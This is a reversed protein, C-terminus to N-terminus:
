RCVELLFFGVLLPAGVTMLLSVLFGKYDTTIGFAFPVVYAIGEAAQVAFYVAAIKCLVRGITNSTM